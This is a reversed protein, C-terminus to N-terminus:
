AVTAPRTGPIEPSRGFRTGAAQPCRPSSWCEPRADVWDGPLARVMRSGVIGRRVAGRDEGDGVAHDGAGLVGVGTPTQDHDVVGDVPLRDRGIVPVHPAGADMHRGPVAHAGPCCM